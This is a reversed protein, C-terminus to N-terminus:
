AVVFQCFQKYFRISSRSITVAALRLCCCCYSPAHGRRRSHQSVLFVELAFFINQPTITHLIQSAVTCIDGTWQMSRPAAHFHETHFIALSPSLSSSIVVFARRGGCGEFLFGDGAWGVFFTIFFCVRVCLVNHSISTNNYLQLIHIYRLSSSRRLLSRHINIITPM